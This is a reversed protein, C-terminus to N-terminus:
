DKGNYHDINIYNSLEQEVKLIISKHPLEHYKKLVKTLKLLEYPHQCNIRYNIHFYSKIKRESEGRDKSFFIRLSTIYDIKDKKEDMLKVVKPLDKIISNKLTGNKSNIYKVIINNKQLFENTSLLYTFFELFDTGLAKNIKTFPQNEKEKDIIRSIIFYSKIEEYLLPESKILDMNNIILLYIIKICKEFFVIKEKDNISQPDNYDHIISKFWYQEEVLIRSPYDNDGVCSYTILTKDKNDSKDFRPNLIGEFILNAIVLWNDIKNQSKLWLVIRRIILITKFADFYEDAQKYPMPKPPNSDRVKRLRLKRIGKFPPIIIGGRLLSNFWGNEEDKTSLSLYYDLQKIYRKAEQSIQKEFLLYSPHNRYHSYFSKLSYDWIGTKPQNLLASYMENGKEVIEELFYNVINGTIETKRKYNPKIGFELFTNLVTSRSQGSYVFIETFRHQQILWSIFSYGQKGKYRGSADELRYDVIAVTIRNFLDDEIIQKAENFSKTLYVKLKKDISELKDKLVKVQDPKDELILVDWGVSYDYRISDSEDELHVLFARETKDDIYTSFTEKTLISLDKEIKLTEGIIDDPLGKINRIQTLLSQVFDKGEEFSLSLAESRAHWITRIEGILDCFHSQVDKLELADLRSIEINEEITDPLQIFYHGRFSLIKYQGSKLFYEEPLFSCIFIPAKVNQLRLKQAVKIGLFNALDNEHWNLEALIFVADITNISYDSRIKDPESFLEIEKIFLYEIDSEFFSLSLAINKIIRSIHFQIIESSIGDSWIIGIKMM